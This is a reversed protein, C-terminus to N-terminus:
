METSFIFMHNHSLLQKQFSGNRHTYFGMQIYKVHFYKWRHLRVYENGRAGLTVPIPSIVCAWCLLTVPTSVTGRCICTCTQAEWLVLKLEATKKYLILEFLSHQQVFVHWSHTIHSASFVKQKGAIYCQHLQSHALNLKKSVDTWRFFRTLMGLFSRGFAKNEWKQELFSFPKWSHGKMHTLVFIACPSSTSFFSHWHRKTM